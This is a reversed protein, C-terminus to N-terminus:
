LHWAWHGHRTSEWHHLILPTVSFRAKQSIGPAPRRGPGACIYCQGIIGNGAGRPTGRPSPPCPPPPCRCDGVLIRRRPAGPATYVSVCVIRNGYSVIVLVSNAARRNQRWEVRERARTCDLIYVCQNTCIGQDEPIVFQRVNDRVLPKPPPRAGM